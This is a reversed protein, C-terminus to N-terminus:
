FGLGKFTRSGSCVGPIDQAILNPRLGTLTKRDDNALRTVLSLNHLCNSAFTYNICRRGCSSM